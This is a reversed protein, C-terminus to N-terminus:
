ILGSTAEEAGLHERMQLILQSTVPNAGPATELRALAQIAESRPSLAEM